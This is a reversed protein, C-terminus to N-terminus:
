EVALITDRRRQTLLGVSVLYDMGMITVPDNSLVEQAAQVLLLMDAVNVDTSAASRFSAREEPTFRNLFEYATWKPADFEWGNWKWGVVCEVGNPIKVGSTPKTDSSVISVVVGLDDLIAWNM